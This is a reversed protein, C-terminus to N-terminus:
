FELMLGAQWSTDGVHLQNAAGFGDDAAHAIEVFLATGNVGAEQDMTRAADPDLFDLMVALGVAAHWGYTVGTTASAKASDSIRWFVADLGARAYPVLPFGSAEHAGDARFVVSASLPFLRLTTDDGSRSQRDASLAAATVSYYGAGVGVALTGARPCLHPVVHREVELRSMLHHASSFTEEFPRGDNGRAALESDIDPRFPGFGLQVSWQRPSAPRPALDLDPEFAVAEAFAPAPDAAAARLPIAASGTITFALIIIPAMRPRRRRTVRRRARRQAVVLSAMLAAAAGAPWGPRPKGGAACGTLGTGGDQRYIDDFGLTPGPVGAAAVSASSPTGDEAIAVVAIQYSQGDTLGHVRVSTGSSVLGSCVLRADLTAFPGSGGAPLAAACTDYAAAHTESGAPSCLVQYGSLATTTAATWSVLLGSEATLVTVGTPAAPGAGTVGLALSPPNDLRASGNRVIAWLRTSSAALATCSSGAGAAAFVAAAPVTATASTTNADLTLITGVSQCTTASNDCDSGLVLTAQVADTALAQAGDDSISLTAVLNDPCACRAPGFYTLLANADLAVGAMTGGAPALTLTFASGDLTAARAASQTLLLALLVPAAIVLVRFRPARAPGLGRRRRNM